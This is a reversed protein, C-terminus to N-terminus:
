IRFVCIDSLDVRTSLLGYPPGVSTFQSYVIPASNGSLEAPINYVQFNHQFSDTIFPSSPSYDENICYTYVVDDCCHSEIQTGTLPSGDKDTEMGCSAHKGTFSIKSAAINGHCYHTAVSLHLMATLMLLSFLISIGKKMLYIVSIGRFQKVFTYDKVQILCLFLSKLINKVFATRDLENV